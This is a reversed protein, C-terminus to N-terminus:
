LQVVGAVDDLHTLSDSLDRSPIAIFHGQVICAVDDVHTQSDSLDRLPMTM